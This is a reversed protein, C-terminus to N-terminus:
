KTLSPFPQAACILLSDYRLAPLRCRGELITQVVELGSGGSSYHSIHIYLCEANRSPQGIGPFGRRVAGKAPRAEVTFESKRSDM